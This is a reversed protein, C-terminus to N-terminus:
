GDSVNSECGEACRETSALLEGVVDHLSRWASEEYEMGSRVFRLAVKFGATLM